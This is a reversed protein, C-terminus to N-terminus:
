RSWKNDDDNNNNYTHNHNTPRMLHLRLAEMGCTQYSQRNNNNNSNNTPSMGFAECVKMSNSSSSNSWSLDGVHALYIGMLCWVTSTRLIM